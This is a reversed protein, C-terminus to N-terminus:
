PDRRWCMVDVENEFLKVIVPVTSEPSWHRNQKDVIRDLANIYAVGAKALDEGALYWTCYEHSSMERQIAQGQKTYGSKRCHRLTVARVVRERQDDDRKLLTVTETEGAFLKRHIDRQNNKRIPM